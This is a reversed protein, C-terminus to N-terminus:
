TKEENVAYIYGVGTEGNDLEYKALIRRYGSGEFEDLFEWNSILEDSTLVFAKIEEQEATNVHKFAYYGLDAGWGEKILKGRVIGQRWNGKIHEIVPYNPRGPALTGYVILVNEPKYQKNFSRETETLDLEELRLPMANFTKLKKNVSEIIADLDM